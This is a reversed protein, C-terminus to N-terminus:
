VIQIGLFFKMEGIMSMEFKNNIEDVFKESAEDNGGFIIGDVFIVIILLGNEIEKLYLDSDITGKTFGIKELYKDLRAYWTRPSQKLGYLAKNLRRVMGFGRIKLYFGKPQEIYVEEELEGNLFTPNLDMQYVKFKKNAAYALFMRVVEIITVLAFIDEYDIGEQQSNGKCALIEKNRVVEGQENIKNQFVWKTGIVNKNKPRPVFEWTYNNMIKDLEEKM